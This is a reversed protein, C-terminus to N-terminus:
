LEMGRSIQNKTKDSIYHPIGIKRADEVECSGKISHDHAFHLM